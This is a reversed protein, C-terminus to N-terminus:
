KLLGRYIEECYRIKEDVPISSAGVQEVCNTRYTYNHSFRILWGDYLEIMHSPWANLSLEELFHITQKKEDQRNMTEKDEM